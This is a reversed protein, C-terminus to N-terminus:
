LDTSPSRQLASPAPVRLRRPSASPSSRACALRAPTVLPAAAVLDGAARRGGALEGSEDAGRRDVGRGARHREVPSTGNAIRANVTTRSRATVISMKLSRSGTRAEHARATILLCRYTCPRTHRL